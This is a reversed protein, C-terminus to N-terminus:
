FRMDIGVAANEEPSALWHGYSAAITAFRELEEQTAPQAAKALPRGTEQFFRALRQTTIILSVAPESSLNRWAHPADGPVHIYDGASASIWRYGQADQRLGDMSGSIILFDETDPHAHLPVFAGPPITGRLVCFGNRKDDPSTLFEVTPGFHDAVMGTSPNKELSM